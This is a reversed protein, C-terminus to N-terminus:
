VCVDDIKELQSGNLIKSKSKSICCASVTKIEFPVRFNYSMGCFFLVRDFKRAAFM